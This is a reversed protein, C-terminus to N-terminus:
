KVFQKYKQLVFQIINQEDQLNENNMFIINKTYRKYWTIQRKAYNRSHQKVKEIANSLTDNGNFYDFFEKYGIAYSVQLKKNLKNQLDFIYKAETLLGNELMEDVRSNIDNYLKERDKNLFIIYYDYPSNEFNNKNQRINSLKENTSHCIELTRIIKKTDNINLKKATQEDVKLLLNYLAEKGQEELIKNLCKRYEEDKQCQAFDYPFLLSEIYLGTGGVIIPLKSNQYILNIQKVTDNKFEATSYEEEINKIDINYHPYKKLLKEDLKATAINCQRYIQMSDASILSCNLIDYLKLAIKTKGVGTPGALILLPIKNITSTQVM